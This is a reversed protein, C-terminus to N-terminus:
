QIAARMKAFAAAATEGPHFIASGAVLVGAGARVVDPANGAKIGGDVELECNLKREDIIRRLRSIKDLMGDIFQQGGAGPNVTMVLVLDLFPLIEGLCSLPTGPNVACGAKKGAERM